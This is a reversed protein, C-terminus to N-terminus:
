MNVETVNKVLMPATRPKAPCPGEATIKRTRSGRHDSRPGHGRRPRSVEAHRLDAPDSGALVKGAGQGPHRRTRHAPQCTRHGGQRPPPRPEPRPRRWHNM